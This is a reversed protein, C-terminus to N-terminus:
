ALCPAIREEFSAAFAPTVMGSLLVLAFVIMRVGARETIVPMLSFSTPRPAGSRM